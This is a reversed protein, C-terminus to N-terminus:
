YNRGAPCFISENWELSKHEFVLLTFGSKYLGNWGCLGHGFIFRHDNEHIHFMYHLTYVQVANPQTRVCYTEKCKKM